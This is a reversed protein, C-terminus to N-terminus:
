RWRLRRNISERRNSGVIVGVTDPCPEDERSPIVAIKAAVPSV